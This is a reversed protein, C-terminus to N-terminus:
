GNNEDSLFGDAYILTGDPLDGGAAVTYGTATVDTPVFSVQAKWKAMMYGESFDRFSDMTLDSSFEVSSDVGVVTGKQSMRKNSIPDRAVTNITAGYSGLDELEVYKFIPSSPLVGLTEEKCYSLSLSNTQVSNPM